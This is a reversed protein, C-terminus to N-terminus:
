ATAVLAKFQPYETLFAQVRSCYPLVALRRKHATLLVNQVLIKDIGGGDFAETIVTQNLRLAGGRITYAIYGALMGDRFLEFRRNLPNDRFKERLGTSSRENRAENERTRLEDVIREYDESTGYPPFDKDLERLLQNSWYRLERNTADSLDFPIDVPTESSDPLPQLLHVSSSATMGAPTSVM